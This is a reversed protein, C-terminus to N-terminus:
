FEDSLINDGNNIAARITDDIEKTIEENFNPVFSVM